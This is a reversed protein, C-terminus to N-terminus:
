ISSFVAFGYETQQYTVGQLTMYDALSILSQRLLEVSDSYENFSIMALLPDDFALQLGKINEIIYYLSNVLNLHLKSAGRPVPLAVSKDLIEQWGAIFVDLEELVTEDNNQTAEVFVDLESGEPKNTSAEVIIQGLDNGYKKLTLATTIDIISLDNIGYIAKTPQKYDDELINAILAAQTESNIEAGSQKLGFYEIAFEQTLRSTAEISSPDSQNQTNELSDNPGPTRPDRGQAVEEGDNTGDGDTDAIQPDTKWLFEEWNELGDQDFDDETDSLPIKIPVEEEASENGSFYTSYFYYGAGGAVIILLTILIFKGSPLIRKHETPEM